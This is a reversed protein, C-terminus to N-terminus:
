SRLVYGVHHPPCVLACGRQKLCGQAICEKLVVSPFVIEKCRLWEEKLYSIMHDNIPPEHIYPFSLYLMRLMGWLYKFFVHYIHHSEWKTAWLELLSQPECYRQWIISQMAIHNQWITHPSMSWWVEGRYSTLWAEALDVHSSMTWWAAAVDM